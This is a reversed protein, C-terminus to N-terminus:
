PHCVTNALKILVAQVNLWTHAAGGFPQPCISKDSHHCIHLNIFSQSMQNVKHIILGGALTVHSYLLCLNADRDASSAAGSLFGDM